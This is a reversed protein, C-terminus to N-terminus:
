CLVDEKIVEVKSEGTIPNRTIHVLTRFFINADPGPGVFHNKNLFTFEQEQGQATSGSATFTLPGSFAYRDGTTLGTVNMNKTSQHVTLHISGRSDVFVLHEEITGLLQIDESLCPFESRLLLWEFPVDIRYTDRFAGNAAAAGVLPAVRLPSPDPASPEGSCAGLLIPILTLALRRM